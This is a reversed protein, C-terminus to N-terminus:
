NGYYRKFGNLKLYDEILLQLFRNVTYNGLWEVDKINTNFLKVQENLYEKIKEIELLYESSLNGKKAELALKRNEKSLSLLDINYDNIVFREYMEKLRLIHSFLKGESLNRKQLQTVMGIIANFMNNYDCHAIYWRSKKDSIYDFANKFNPEIIVFKSLFVEVSNPSTRKLLYIAKRADKITCKGGDDDLTFEHTQYEKGEIYDQFNPLVLSYTDVDSTESDLEYNQSGVLHTSIVIYNNEEALAKVKNHHAAVRNIIQEKNM